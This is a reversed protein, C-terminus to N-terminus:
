KRFRKRKIERTKKKRFKQGFVTRKLIFTVHFKIHIRGIWRTFLKSFFKFPLLRPDHHCTTISSSSHGTSPQSNLSMPLQSEAHLPMQHISDDVCNLCDQVPTFPAMDTWPFRRCVTREWCKPDIMPSTPFDKDMLPGVGSMTMLWLLRVGILSTLFLRMTRMWCWSTWTMRCGRPNRSYEMLKSRTRVSMLYGNYM